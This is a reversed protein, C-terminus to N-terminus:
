RNSNSNLIWGCFVGWIARLRSILGRAAAVTELHRLMRSMALVQTLERWAKDKEKAEEVAMKLYDPTVVKGKKGQSRMRERERKRGAKRIDNLRSKMKGRDANDALENIRRHIAGLWSPKVELLERRAAQRTELSESIIRKLLDDLAKVATSQPTPPSISPVEPLGPLPSKSAASQKEARALGALM